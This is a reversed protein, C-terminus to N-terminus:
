RATLLSAARRVIRPYCSVLRSDFCHPLPCKVMGSFAGFAHGITLIERTELRHQWGTLFLISGIRPAMDDIYAGGTM